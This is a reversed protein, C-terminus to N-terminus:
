ANSGNGDPLNAIREKLSAIEEKAHKLQNHLSVPAESGYDAIQEEIYRRNGEWTHLQKILSNREKESDEDSLSTPSQGVHTDRKLVQTNPWAPVIPPPTTETFSYGARLSDIYVPDRVLSYHVILSALFTAKEPPLDELTLVYSLLAGLAHYGPREKLDGYDELRSELDGAVEEPPGTLDMGPLFRHLGALQILNLRGRPGGITFTPLSAILRVLEQREDVTLFLM